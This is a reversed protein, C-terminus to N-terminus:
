VREAGPRRKRIGIGEGGEFLFEIGMEELAKQIDRVTRDHPITAGREFDALTKLAVKACKALESQKLGLLARAARCLSANLM